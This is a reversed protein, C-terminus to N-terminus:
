NKPTPKRERQRKFAKASDYNIQWANGFKRADLAGLKAYKRVLSEEVQMIRAAQKVTIWTEM